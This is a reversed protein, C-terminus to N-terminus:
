WADSNGEPARHQEIGVIGGPKLLKKIDELAKTEFQGKGEMRRFHHYARVVLVVDATGAIDDPIAGLAPRFKESVDILPSSSYIGVSSPATRHSSWSTVM